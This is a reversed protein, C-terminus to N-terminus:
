RRRVRRASSWGRPARRALRIWRRMYSLALGRMGRRALAPDDSWRRMFVASPFIERGLLKAKAKVGPTGAIREFGEATPPTGWSVHRRPMQAETQALGLRARVPQGEPVSALGAVFGPLADTERALSAALEWTPAPSQRLARQLDRIPKEATVHHAAHLAVLLACAPRSPTWVRRGDILELPARDSWLRDWVLAPDADFGWLHRHLDVPLPWRDSRWADAHEAAWGPSAGDYRNIFGFDGLVREADAYRAPDVVVDLDLISRVDGPYLWRAIVPGKILLANVGRQDLKAMLEGAMLEAMFSRGALVATTSPSGSPKHM